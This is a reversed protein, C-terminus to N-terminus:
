KNVYNANAFSRYNGENDTLSFWTPAIVNMGKGEAVMSDLTDNGGVGGIYHWGLSVKSPMSISNYEEPVYDTVPIETVTVAEGMKHNEVYGILSDSTKVKTWTDMEELIEVTEGEAIERLIPSKIGGKIRIQTDELIKKTQKEGWLTYVQLHRDFKEYSFNSFKKVYEAALYLTGGEIYCPAYGLEHAGTKDMYEKAGFLVTITDTATTYLLKQETFDAYFGENFYEQVTDLDFYVQEDKLFAKASIKEDQLIVALEGTGAGVGFYEDLDAMETGYSYKDVVTKGFGTAAIVAILILAILVPLGKKLKGGKKEKEELDAEEEPYEDDEPYGEEDPYEEDEWYEGEEQSDSYEGDDQEAEGAFSEEQVNTEEINEINNEIDERRKKM